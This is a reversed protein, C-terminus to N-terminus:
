IWCNITTKWYSQLLINYLYWINSEVVCKLDLKNDNLM